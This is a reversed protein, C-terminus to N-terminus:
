IPVPTHNAQAHIFTLQKRVLTIENGCKSIHQRNNDSM